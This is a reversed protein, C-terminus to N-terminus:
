EVPRPEPDHTILAAIRWHSDVQHLVYTVGAHELERGNVTYRIAVGTVLTATAGLSEARRIRLESRGFGRARLAEIFNTLAPALVTHTPAAFAGQPALLLCPEHFFPLVSDVQFTNFADYYHQLTQIATREDTM